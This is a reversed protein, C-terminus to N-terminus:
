GLLLDIGTQLAQATLMGKQFSKLYGQADVFFTAPISTVSYRFAAEMDTDYYVPFTYGNELVFSHATEVTEQSGDTLNVMMFEVQQGYEQYKEAFDPMEMKCPGCWSAWFNLVVPKGLFDSLKHPNGELDYVTFDPIKKRQSEKEAEPAPSQTAVMDVPVQSSLTGYLRTAGLILVVMALALVTLKLIKFTKEM